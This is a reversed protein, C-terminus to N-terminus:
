THVISMTTNLIFALRLSIQSITPDRKNQEEYQHDGSLWKVEVTERAHELLLRTIAFPIRYAM